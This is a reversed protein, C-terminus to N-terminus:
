IFIVMAVTVELLRFHLPPPPGWLSEPSPLPVVLDWPGLCLTPLFTLGARTKFICGQTHPDKDFSFTCFSFLAGM